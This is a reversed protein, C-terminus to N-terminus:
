VSCHELEAKAIASSIIMEARQEWVALDINAFALNRGMGIAYRWRLKEQETIHTLCKPLEAILEATPYSEGMEVRRRPVDNRALRECLFESV